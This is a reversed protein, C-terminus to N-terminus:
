VVLRCEFVETFLLVFVFDIMRPVPLARPRLVVELALISRTSANSLMSAEVIAAGTRIDFAASLLYLLLFNLM